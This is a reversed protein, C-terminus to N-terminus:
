PARDGSERSAAQARDTIREYLFICPAATMGHVLVSACVVLTTLHWLMPNGTHKTAVMAYFIAAIGIPGFWGIFLADPTSRIAPASGHALLVAPLRRLLLILAALAAGQWGLEAWGQWPITLGVLVFIPLTFFGNIAEQVREEQGREREGVARGFLIGSVFVALIANTHLLEGVGLTLLTLAITYALLSTVEIAHHKEAIVLLRGAVCGLLAGLLVSGGVQWLLTHLLWQQGAAQAEHAILLIPLWVLPFALGDNAGSEGLLLNRLRAPLIREAVRGTVISTSVIPDTACLLAGVLLALLLPLGLLAYVLLGASLAMAPMVFLLMIALTRVHRLFYDPPLRLAIAMLGIAITLRAGHEIITDVEGWAGPHLLDLAQPGMAAGVLLAAMPGTLPLHEFSRSLLGLGIVLAGVVTLGLFLESMYGRDFFAGSACLSQVDLGAALPACEAATRHVVSLLV